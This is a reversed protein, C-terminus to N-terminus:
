DDPRDSRAAGVTGPAAADVPDLPGATAGEPAAREEPTSRRRLGVAPACVAMGLMGALRNVSLALIAAAIPVDVALALAGGIAERLGLGAPFIGVAAALVLSSSIAIAAGFGAPQGIAVLALWLRLGNLLVLGAEVLSAIAKNVTMRACGYEKMLEPEITLAITVLGAGELVRQIIALSHNCIPSGPTL